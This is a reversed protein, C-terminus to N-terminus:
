HPRAAGAKQGDLSKAERGYSNARDQNEMLFALVRSIDASVVARMWLGPIRKKDWKGGRNMGSSM